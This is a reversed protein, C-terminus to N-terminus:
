PETVGLVRVRSYQLMDFDSICMLEKPVKKNIEEMQAVWTGIDVNVCFDVNESM